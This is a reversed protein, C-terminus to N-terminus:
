KQVERAYFRGDEFSLCSEFYYNVFIQSRSLPRVIKFYMEDENDWVWMDPELDEFKLSPNDFHEAILRDITIIAENVEKKTPKKAMACTYIYRDIIETARECEKKNM